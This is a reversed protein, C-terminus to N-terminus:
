RLMGLCICPVSIPPPPLCQPVKATVRQLSAAVYMESTTIVEKYEVGWRQVVANCRQRAAEVAFWVFYDLLPALTLAAM